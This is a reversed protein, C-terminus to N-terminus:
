RLPASRGASGTRELPRNPPGLRQMMWDHRGDFFFHILDVVTSRTMGFRTEVSLTAWPIFGFLKRPAAFRYHVMAVDNKEPCIHLIGGDKRMFGIGSPCCEAREDELEAYLRLEDQWDHNEFARVAADVDVPAFDTSSFDARQIWYPFVNM